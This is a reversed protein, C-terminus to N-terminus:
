LWCGLGIAPRLYNMAMNDKTFIQFYGLGADLFFTKNFFFLFSVEMLFSPNWASISSSDLGDNFEFRSKIYSFGGGLRFNLASSRSFPRIQYLLSLHTNLFHTYRSTHLIDNALYNWSPMFELGFDGFDTNLPLLTLRFAFGLVQIPSTTFIENFEGFPLIVLPVSVLEM